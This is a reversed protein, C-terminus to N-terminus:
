VVPIAEPATVQTANLQELETDSLLAKHCRTLYKTMYRYHESYFRAADIQEHTTSTPFKKELIMRSAQDAVIEAILIKTTPLDKGPFHPDPGRYRKMIPHLGMITIVTLADEQKVTARYNGAEQYDDIQIKLSPGEAEKTVVVNCTTSLDGLKATITAQSSLERAEITVEAVYQEVEEDLFFKVQGKRIVVGPNSSFVSADMGHEAIDALPALIRVTKKRTWAIRYNDREFQLHDVPNQEVEVLEREPRVEIIAVDSHNGCNATLLTQSELLPRLHIQGTLLDPRTRHPALPISVGDIIEVVGAPECQVTVGNSCLEPVVMVSVTKEEGMYLVVDQPILRIPPLQSGPIDSGLLGEEDIERLDEDILKSLDRSLNNLMRRLQTSETSSHERSKRDEEAILPELYSEVAAALAKYFPHLRQLGDRRRTIIPMPNLGDQGEHALLRRDYERALDDIFPCDLRGSYWGAHPNTEFRFLTNDYIARRGKILIGAPRLPDSPPDDYRESNRFITLRASANPYGEISIDTELIIPLQSFSFHLVDCANTNLDVLSVEREPDAMIDRLQYHRSLKTVLKAHQPCRFNEQVNITVITGNARPIGLHERDNSTHKCPPDLTYNGDPELRLHAYEDNCICEFDVPGFAALDKAGRGLNGRVDAGAEFGSTRGGLHAIVDEMRSATMGTARDRSIVKWPGRRHEVEIRIKGSKSGYADDSNTITEILARTIDGGMAETADQHFARGGYTVHGHKARM